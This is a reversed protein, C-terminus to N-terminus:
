ESHEDYNKYLTSCGHVLIGINLFRLFERIKHYPSVSRTILTDMFNINGRKLQQQFQEMMGIIYYSDLATLIVGLVIILPICIQVQLPFRKCMTIYSMESQTCAHYITLGALIYVISLLLWQAISYPLISEESMYVGYYGTMAELGVVIIFSEVIKWYTIKKKETGHRLIVILVIYLAVIIAEKKFFYDM